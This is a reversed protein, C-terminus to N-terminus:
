LGTGNKKTKAIFAKLYAPEFGRLDEWDGSTFKRFAANGMTAARPYVGDVFEANPHRIVERCKAAGNGFFSIRSRDLVESFAREDIVVPRTPEIVEFRETILTTYVEMRRADIMPALLRGNGLPAISSALVHLTDLAILPLDLGYCIGKATSASIRLGTYSGPGASVAVSNLNKRSIGSTEFLSEILPVLQAAAVQPTHLEKDVILLGDEHLAVSCVTTSTELSLILAM